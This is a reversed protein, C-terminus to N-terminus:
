ARPHLQETTQLFDAWRQYGADNLHIADASLDTTAPLPMVIVKADPFRVELAEVILSTGARVQALSCKRREWFRPVPLLDNAGIRVVFMAPHFAALKGSEVLWLLNATHYGGVGLNAASGFSAWLAPRFRWRETISDGLFVIAADKPANRIHLESLDLDLPEPRTPISDPPRFHVLGLLVVFLVVSLVKM